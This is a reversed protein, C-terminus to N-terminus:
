HDKFSPSRLFGASEDQRGPTGRQIGKEILFFIYGVPGAIPVLLILLVWKVVLRTEMSQRNRAIHVLGFVQMAVHVILWGVLWPNM